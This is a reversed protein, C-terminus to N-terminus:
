GLIPALKAGIIPNRPYPMSDTEEVALASGTDEEVEERSVGGGGGGDGRIAATSVLRPNDAKSAMSAVFGEPLPIM